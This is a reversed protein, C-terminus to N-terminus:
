VDKKSCIFQLEFAADQVGACFASGMPVPDRQRTPLIRSSRRSLRRSVPRVAHRSAHPARIKTLKKSPACAEAQRHEATAVIPSAGPLGSM